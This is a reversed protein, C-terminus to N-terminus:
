LIVALRYISEKEVGSANIYPGYCGTKSELHFSPFVTSLGTAALTNRGSLRHVFNLAICVNKLDDATGKECITTVIGLNFSQAFNCFLLQNLAYKQYRFFIEFLVFLQINLQCSTYKVFRYFGKHSCNQAPVYTIVTSFQLVISKLIQNQM